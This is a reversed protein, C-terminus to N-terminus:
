GAPSIAIFRNQLRYERYLWLGSALFALTDSVPMSIWVGTLGLQSSLIYLAPIFFVFQRALTLALADKGKSLGQFTTIFIITPGVLAFSITFIRMGPVAIELLAPDRSFLGIVQPTFVQLFVTALVLFAVLGLSAMRVAGWLRQWLKAGLSFGIIPLVGNATGIVPMFALDFVRMAIGVAALVISGFGAAIHNFLAFIVAEMAEMMVSPAGVRYIAGVTRLNPICHRFHLRYATRGGLIYGLALLAGLGSSITTALAAGGVGMEPFIWWGFILCPDLIVNCAQAAITFLLPRLTDGSAHFINRSVLGFLLMPTAFGIIRLYQEGLDMIDQTAGSLALIQRPFLNTVLILLLGSGLTLFFTQGVAQNAAPVDREGFHRSALANVGIGTGVGFAMCIIFFPMVVTLAAVAQYGLRAVWFTNVLNYLSIIVM